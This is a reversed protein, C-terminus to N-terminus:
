TEVVLSPPSVHCSLETNRSQPSSHSPSPAKLDRAVAPRDNAFVLGAILASAEEKM